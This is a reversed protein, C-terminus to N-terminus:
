VGLFWLSQLNLAADDHNYDMRLSIKDTTLNLFFKWYLIVQIPKYSLRPPPETIDSVNLVKKLM